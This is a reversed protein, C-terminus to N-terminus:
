SAIRELKEKMATQEIWIGNSYPNLGIIESVAYVANLEIWIGNSYPNLGPTTM